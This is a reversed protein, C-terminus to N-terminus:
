RQGFPLGIASAKSPTGAQKCSATQLFEFPPFYFEPDLIQWVPKLRVGRVLGPNIFNRPLDGSTPAGHV